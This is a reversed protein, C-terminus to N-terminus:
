ETSESNHMWQGLLQAGGALMRPADGVVQRTLALEARLERDDVRRAPFKTMDAPELLEPAQAAARLRARRNQGVGIGQVVGGGHRMRCTPGQGQRGERVRERVAIRDKFANHAVERGNIDIEDLQRQAVLQHMGLGKMVGPLGQTIRSRILSRGDQVATIVFVRSPEEPQARLAAFPEREVVFFPAVRHHELRKAHRAPRHSIPLVPLKALREVALVALHPAEIAPDRDRIVLRHPM